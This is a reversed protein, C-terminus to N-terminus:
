PSIGSRSANEESPTGVPFQDTAPSSTLQDASSEVDIPALDLPTAPTQFINADGTIDSTFVVTPQTCIWTPAYDAIDNDTVLRTQGSAFDYVYIDLDGDRDSQYAILTDDFYWSQNSANGDAASIAQMDTGDEQMTYLISTGNEELRFAIQSGGTAYLPDFAEHPLDVLRTIAQTRLDLDYIQWLSDRNSQFVLKGGASSWAANVTDFPGTTLQTETGTLVDFLFLHWNGNRNSEYVLYQSNPSWVPDTDIAENVTVRQQNNGQADAVYIEWNGDRNSTFVVWETNPSRSPSLDDGLGRSINLNVNGLRFIDWDGTQDSHYLSWDACVIPCSNIPEWDVSASEDSLDIATISADPNLYATQAGLGQAPFQGERSANEEVPAGLPYIDAAEDITLQEAELDVAIGPATIPLADTDFLDPNGTIDSTFLLHTSNCQWTPAYDPIDNATLQRTRGGGVEYVYVDLDGDLDSQYAILTDDPSWSHNTADGDLDSIARVNAGDADMITIVSDSGDRYSRFAIRTGGNSYQPDVDVGTGDSLLTTSMTALDFEYIQWQGSRDSQFVLKSGDPSWYANLDNATSTTLQRLNGTTMNIMYLDWNGNRTSEFVVFNNPGWTPDTDIALDNHTVRRIQSGDGDTPAVYIEWNGDRNSAFVIWEANPSRSPAIDDADEGQSLNPSIGPRDGLDGLRFIEWDGTQNTHYLQWDVCLRQCTNLSTWGDVPTVGDILAPAPTYGFDVTLLTEGAGLPVTTISDLNGDLDYTATLGPPLTSLDVTVTYDGPRLDDFLYLGDVETVDTRQESGDGPTLILTVGNIGSESADQIGDRDLDLWVRDGLRSLLVIGADWTLDIEGWVLNTDITRFTNVDVDSDLGDDAGQDQDTFAYGTPLTFSVYYDGALLNDFLYNGDGDTLTTGLITGDPQHLTVTVDAVGPEASDQIGNYNTDQWVFDGLAALPVVGADWTLDEENSILTTVITRGTDVDADSDTADDGSNDQPSFIYGPPLVFEVFYDGPILSAFLYLGNADTTETRLLTGTDDYLNVTINEIGVETADQVGDNNADVWVFDGLSVRQFLGADWTLDDENSELTTTVTQGFTAGVNPDPDSDVTDDAGTDQPSFEFDTPSTFVVYYDGPVLNDFLYFGTADTATTGQSVGAGDFLEVAVGAIPPEGADQIGDANLDEWVFDGLSARRFLGADWTLDDEDSDLTTTATQGFTAGANPDADSDVADDAGTDQPSFEFDTPPTFVVYYDGPVLNDFLYLGAADTATTGQSAGAGDFLEVVVGAIPPEGADQIGDANLDEWVFDGLSARRFLGADWTRDDEDSDLTTTATQGFTAGANPDADSDVTDDAGTDQPSFEYGTPPTFVVYYDGPVLNDFLYLGAADTTTTGQSVDAGDFLEVTVNEIGPEGADQIGDANLDEWVFDGLSAPVYMGVDWTDDDENSDLTTPVARGTIPDADSDLADDGGQDPPSIDYGTPPVFEVLYDGPVLDDFLYAGTADTTTTDILVPNTPDNADYLNVTVNEIGPEGADQIGDANVDEWVFDGISAPNYIGADWTLDDENSELTTTATQGFTAGAAPDADSDITDDAGADQQTFVFGAPLGSFVVYYDGPVLDDFLYLGAADTATPAGVQAGTGDFLTVTVGAVPPEGADQIGNANIDEWVYDGLSAPNYIGADWTPDDEGSDLTTTAARGFTPGATPDADSDVSDDGGTDQQTFVYGAPLASFVVYYDGPVLDTFQYFGTADTTTPAGVQTDTDDFLTVTVNEVGPEGADQIGDANLDDWVFDGLSALAFMGADWTLDDENSELTTTATRGFTPGATPDADSDVTDDAGTDQPSLEYGAPPSFVVYYDGPVLDDFLYFGTADTTTTGQSAGTGDFLEVTVNEIGPEGADQIGNANIDEWVFDGLSAPNYIGADWTPDDEGSDLTTTAARGFTPGATPDADSDVTDDAGVDQPSFVYGAPLDSFVVYYDGPVLDTFQYFGTADTTTPAGVQTDTDDFLTVTVNEVGPEGADQIGDANLDDWVFDGLSALAFIGADWTPDDEGPDLTTTTTRGFTPGATPDADSDVTDDAGTDQPSFQYGAPLTSFVVYYDGPQLDTFQYFGTADTTTPAGVQTDTDDFLTVTVNEVGPEGADQIGDANTDDWVFDGLSALPYMGADWTLDDENSELTTTITFGTTPDADSDTADDGSNDQPSFDYGPPLVFEVVYDGPPLDDFLYAGTGDTTTTDIPNVLDGPDYLNVTIGPIGTEGPDQVGDLDLDEWVFDGLSAPNYIGADWTPDDEGSDLTTTAARGFTPGATPDADSDVTDDGGVDQQTFVFGAPLGSFVVYYDGPALDTFQYFGTADTTTPAGVQTDTDDFLTVTVNEVGPEGADQIGDGNVDEWVFDGLSAPLYLGADWTIDTEGSDLIITSTQGSTPDADSDVADDAGQDQMTFEYGVPLEFGVIYDGPILDTFSYAGAGDTTTTDIPNVLDGPDYLNVTVGAIPPEGADQIGDGNTDEWVFDGLAALQYVGADWTLDDEDPDLTTTAARGFTPGPTPDADSDVADDGGSDQPSFADFGTPLTFVVYYDGPQLNVFQYFGTGDTTTTGQSVDSSDFLEVDVGAIGPEGADQIGDANLDNWVFDGISALPFLGADLTLDDPDGSALTVTQTRGFTPGPTPDADSDVTDDGGQNHLTFEFGVPPLVFEVFYSGPPLDTFLYLGSADTTTTDIPAGPATADYLNVTVGAVGPESAGGDQIGDNDLDRWVFDGLSVPQYLGLDWTRDDEGPSLTITSTNGTAPDADSDITDDGGVDQPSVAFGVPPTFRIFLNDPYVDTFLYNGSADTVTTDRVFNALDVLEVTVGPVGPEGADQIGDGDIDEWVRDGVTALEILGADWTLDDENSELFTNVTQMTIIAPDSDLADDVGFFDPITLAHNAPLDSFVVYYTGPILNDFLYLGAADTVDPAGVQTGTGDFLTVTVGPAPLEGADQEGDFDADFWVFDGLSARQFMGADWCNDTEGPTLTTTATRGQTPGAAPDADSDGCDGGVDQPSFEYDASPLTFVVYYDGPLLDTFNYNGTGDTTTTDILNDGSDFLEVTVGPIGPEGGDQRGDADLDEWVRDGIAAPIVLGADWTPDNEGPDLTTTITRGTVLDADSDTADTAAADDQYTFIYTIPLIFEVFYDGPVLDTFNYLGDIDTITTDLPTGPVAADYLNVTINELGSEGPDQVGDGDADLWVYDGLSAAPLVGADWTRDDAGVILVIPITRGSVPDADSDTLDTAAGADQTTFSYVAPPVFEVIYTGAPLDVFNYLGNGDTTTTDLFAGGGDLLNVTVGPLGVESPDQVGDADTDIWVYDGLRALADDYGFYHSPDDDTVDPVPLGTDPDILPAGGADVPTGVVTGINAYQGAVSVGAPATCTFTDTPDLPPIPGEACLATIDGLIDDTLTITDLRTNGTNTIVYTWVVPDGIPVLPGTPLDADNGNTAKELDILPAILPTEIEIGVKNPEAPRLPIGTAANTSTFAFSNWAIEGLGATPPAQMNWTFEFTEGPSLIGAFDFRLSQVTTVDAPPLTSWNPATCGPPGSSIIDPRCPNDSTSYYVTIGPPSAVLGTLVPRWETLRPSTDRVGTDGIFPLIDIVRVDSIDINGQNIIRLRYTIDGNPLTRGTDPFQSFDTDLEGLVGKLSDLGVLEEITVSTSNRAILDTDDGDGDLDDTDPDGSLLPMSNTTVAYDNTLSGQSVGPDIAADFTLTAFQGQVFTHSFTWRLLTRGTGNYNPLEEFAPAPSGTPGPTFAWTGPVYSLGVPLLEMVIPDFMVSPSSGAAGVRLQYTIVQTPIYPGSTLTTKNVSPQAVPERVPDISNDSLSSPAGGFTWDLDADNTMLDNDNVVNGLNDPNVPIGNITPGGNFGAPVTGFSWIVDTVYEGAALSPIQFTTETGAPATGLVTPGSLNSIYSVTVTVGTSNTYGGSTVSTVDFQPPIHDTITLDDLAIGTDNNVPLWYAGVNQGILFRWEPAVGGLSIKTFDPIPIPVIDFSAGAPGASGSGPGSPSDAFDYTLDATNTITDGNSVPVGNHDPSIVTGQFSGTLGTPAPGTSAPNVSPQIWQIVTVWEGPPLTLPGGAFPVFVPNLNTQYQITGTGGVGINTVDIQPPVVDTIVFNSLPINGTNTAFLSFGATAGVVYDARFASKSVSASPLPQFRVLPSTVVATDTWTPEGVPDGTGVVTNTVDTGEINPPEPFQVTVTRATCGSSATLDGLDWTVTQPPGADYVGGGSTSLFVADDPLTDVMQANLLNVTSGASCIQVQYTVDTQPPSTDLYIPTLASKQVEWNSSATNTVVYNDTSSPGNELTSIVINDIPQTDPITGDDRVRVRVRVFGTSGASLIGNLGPQLDWIVSNNDESYVGQQFHISGTSGVFVFEEPLFDFLQVDRCSSTISSCEYDIRFDLIDGPSVTTIGTPETDKTLLVEADEDLVLRGFLCATNAADEDSIFTTSIQTEDYACSGLAGPILGLIEFEYDDGGFSFSQATRNLSIRDACPQTDGYPCTNLLNATEDIFVTTSFVGTHAPDVFNITMDLDVAQLLSSAIVSNNYHTLEGIVFPVGSDFVVAGNNTGEIGLGSQTSPDAPCDAGNLDDDGFRIQEEAGVTQELLCTVPGATGVPNTWDPTNIQAAVVGVLLVFSLAFISLALQRPTFKVTWNHKM